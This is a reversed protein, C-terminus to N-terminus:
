LSSEGKALAYRYHQAAENIEGLRFEVSALSVLTNITLLNSSGYAQQYIAAARKLLPEADAYRTQTIYLQALGNLDNALSPHNPGLAKIDVAITRKYNPEAKGYREQQFVSDNLVKYAPALSQDSIPDHVGRLVIEPSENTEA